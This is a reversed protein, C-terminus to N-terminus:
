RAPGRLAAHREAFVAHLLGAHADAIPSKLRSPLRSITLVCKQSSVGTARDDVVALAVKAVHRQAGPEADLRSEDLQPAPM